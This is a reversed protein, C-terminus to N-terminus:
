PCIAAPSSPPGGVNGAWTNASGSDHCNQGFNGSAANNQFNNSNAGTSAYIGYGNSVARNLDFFNGSAGSALYFGIKGNDIALNDDFRNRTASSDLQYGFGPNHVAANDKFVNLGSSRLYFGRTASTAVDDLFQNSFSGLVYYGYGARFATDNTLLSKTVKVLYYDNTYGRVNCNRIAISSKGLARIGYTGGGSPAVLSFGKCDLTSGSATFSLGPSPCTLSATMTNVGGALNGCALQTRSHHALAQAAGVAAILVVLLVLLKRM